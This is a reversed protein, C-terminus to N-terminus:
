EQSLLVDFHNGTYLIYLSPQLYYETGAVFGIWRPEYVWYECSNVNYSYMNAKFLHALVVMEVNTGWAGMQDIRRNSIYEEVTAESIFIRLLMHGVSRLHEVIYCHVEFHQDETGTILYSFARFLCNGDPCVKYKFTPHALKVQSGGADCENACIFQLGLEPCVRHQWDEPIPYFRFEDAVCRANHQPPSCRIGGRYKRVDAGSSLLKVKKLAPVGEDGCISKSPVNISEDKRKRTSMKIRKANPM